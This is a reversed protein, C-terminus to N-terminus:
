IERVVIHNAFSRLATASVLMGRGQVQVQQFGGNGADPLWDQGSGSSSSKRVVSAADPNAPKGAETRRSGANGDAIKKYYVEGSRCIEDAYVRQGTNAERYYEAKSDITTVQPAPNDGLDYVNPAVENSGSLDLCLHKGQENVPAGDGRGILFSSRAAVASGSHLTLIAPVAAAAGRLVLRRRAPASGPVGAQSSDDACDAAGNLVTKNKGDEATM